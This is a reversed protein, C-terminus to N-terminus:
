FVAGGDNAAAAAGSGKADVAGEAGCAGFSGNENTAAVGVGDCWCPNGYSGKELM